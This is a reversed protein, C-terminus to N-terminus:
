AAPTKALRLLPRCYLPEAVGIGLNMFLPDGQKLAIAARTLDEKDPYISLLVPGPYHALGLFFERERDNDIAYRLGLTFARPTRGTLVLVVHRHDPEVRWHADVHVGSASQLASEDDFVAESYAQELEDTATRAVPQMLMVARDTTLSFPFAEAEIVPFDWPM